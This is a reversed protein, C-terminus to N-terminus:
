YCRNDEGKVACAGFWALCFFFVFFSFHCFRSVAYRERYEDDELLGDEYLEKLDRLRNLEDM